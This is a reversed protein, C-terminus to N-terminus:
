YKLLENIIKYTVDGETFGDSDIFIYKGIYNQFSNKLFIQNKLKFETYISNKKYISYMFISM